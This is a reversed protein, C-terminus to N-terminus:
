GLIAKKRASEWRYQHIKGTKAIVRHCPILYGIPNIAIANAVARFSKPYGMYEAIDQYCLVNGSPLNMLARWVNIQFNTGKLLLHFPRPKGSPPISFLRHVMSKTLPMNETFAAEPWNQHLNALAAERGDKEVFGLHCIGRQTVALLCAGFPTPQFGHQINLEAGKKKFEGPTMAEFTVFLDHLRAPGSFGADLSTDFLNRSQGLKKKAYELTLYQMFQVGSIGAWRKFLRQFHFKSLHIHEAMEDLTPRAKFNDELFRIAKEIRHYDDSQQSFDKDYM